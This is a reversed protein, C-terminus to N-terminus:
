DAHNSRMTPIAELGKALDVVTEAVRRLEALPVLRGLTHYGNNAIRREPYQSLRGALANRLAALRVLYLHGPGPIYYALYDATSTYLWGRRGATDVSVTEIFANGTRGATRDTKVEVTTVDGTERHTLVLDLGRRQEARTAWRVRYVPACFAAIRQEGVDGQAQQTSFHYTPQTHISM